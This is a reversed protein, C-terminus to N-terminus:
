LTYFETGEQRRKWEGIRRGKKPSPKMYGLSVEFEKNKRGGGLL